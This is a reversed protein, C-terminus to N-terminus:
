GNIVQLDTYESLGWKGFEVGLGSRKVGGFPVDPRVPGHNNIWATGCELRRALSRGYELDGTWVSGGLGNPNDNADAIVEDIDSFRIIPLVPGFQEEDVLRVGNAVDAILTVPYFLGGGAGDAEGGLLVRGGRAKADEVLEVVKDYQMRNQIPGLHTGADIGNGVVIGKAFATLERCVDDYIADHVYLRKLAACTQGNNIFAGWFLGEAIQKADCDPLVIGADNGGLELTLRKITESAGSMIKSGTASSGTFVIKAIGEHRSMAGGIEGGGTVCNVVGDPLVSDILEILRLTSLPTYPSPKIIATNGSRIAPMLHWIATLLPWNWPTISGIVGVPKQYVVVRGENDDQVVEPELSLSSAHRAWAVAGGVEFRSGLGDLPKGQELTVLKALEEAHAEIVDAVKNCNDRLVADDLRSYTAFAANAAQVAQDLHEPTVVAAQGVVENTAPNLVDTYQEAGVKKGGLILDFKTM